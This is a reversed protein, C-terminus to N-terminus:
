CIANHNSNGKEMLVHDKNNTNIVEFYIMQKDCLLHDMFILQM